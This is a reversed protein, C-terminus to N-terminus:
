CPRSSLLYYGFLDDNEYIKNHFDLKDLTTDGLIKPASIKKYYGALDMDVEIPRTQMYERWIFVRGNSALIEDESQFIVDELGLFVGLISTGYRSDSFLDNSYGSLTEAGKIEQITYAKSITSETLWLSSDQNAITCTPMFIAFSFFVVVAFVKASNPREFQGLINVIAFAAMISLFFYVFVFWRSPIINRIGFLPFGFTIGLIIITCFIMSINMNSRYRLSLWLLCGIISLFILLTLGFTDAIREIFPPLEVIYEAIAEPRNLFDAYGTVYYDLTFVIQEFFSNGSNKNYLAIFWNQLLIIGYLLLFLPSFVSGQRDCFVWYLFSGGLLGALTVFLIFSSVAQALIIAPAFIFLLLLWEMRGQSSYSRFLIFLIFYYLCVGFSTTQPQMGWLIHFDMINVILVAFLGVKEGYYRRAVLYVCISSIILPILIAFNTADKITTNIAIQNIATLIHMLPFFPEKGLLVDISGTLSLLNNMHLHAWYDVGLGEYLIFISYKLNFSVALIKTIQLYSGWKTETNLISVAILSVCIAILLFYSPPRDKSVYLLLMSLAFAIFFVIEYLMRIAQSDKEYGGNEGKGKIILYVFSAISLAVGLTLLHVTASILYLSSICVGIIIGLIGVVTDLRENLLNSYSVM